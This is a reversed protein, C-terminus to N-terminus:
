AGSARPRVADDLSNPYRILGDESLLLADGDVRVEQADVDGEQVTYVLDLNKTGNRPEAPLPTAAQSSFPVAKVRIAQLNVPAM